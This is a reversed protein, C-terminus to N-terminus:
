FCARSPLHKSMRAFSSIFRLFAVVGPRAVHLRFLFVAKFASIADGCVFLRVNAAACDRLVRPMSRELGIQMWARMEAQNASCCRSLRRRLCCQLGGIPNIMALMKTARAMMIMMKM